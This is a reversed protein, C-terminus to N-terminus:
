FKFNYTVSPIIGFLYVMVAETQNPNDKKERFYISFANKRMYINYVSFNWSGKWKRNPKNKGELTASIDARHYAPFRFGNRETYYPVV